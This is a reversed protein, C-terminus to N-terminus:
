LPLLDYPTRIGKHQCQKCDLAVSFQLCTTVHLRILSCAAFCAQSTQLLDQTLSMDSLGTCACDCVTCAHFLLEIDGSQSMAVTYLPLCMALSSQLASTCVRM